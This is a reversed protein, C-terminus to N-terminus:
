IEPLHHAELIKYTRELVDEPKILKLCLNDGDCPSKRHNYASLCPSCSIPIHLNLARKSLSGYLLPTEPGYLIIAHIPTMSAFHGPGGDNTILLSAFHFLIMLERVRETYGTLDICLPSKCHDLIAHALGKDRSTGVIGVVYGRKVLERAVHQFNGIPWARIPLLGGGPYLLVLRRGRAQPFKAEFRNRAEGIEEQTVKMPRITLPEDTIRRKVRPIGRSEIAEVLNIFQQSIHLYPNYLVPRNIFKGRYLGEQTHPHFGVRIRANSLFSYISSIRSFLECDITTDIKIRRMNLLFKISDRFFLPFSTNDVTIINEKPVVEMIELIESNQKFCLAYIRSGSYREGLLQFMSQALVFSGMESLLIVLIRRPKLNRNQARGGTSFLSLIRCLPSGIIRDIRRQLDLDM